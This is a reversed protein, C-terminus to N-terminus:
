LKVSKLIELQGLEEGERAVQPFYRGVSARLVPSWLETGQNVQWSLINNIDGSDGMRNTKPSLDRGNGIESVGYPHTWGNRALTHCTTEMNNHQNPGL